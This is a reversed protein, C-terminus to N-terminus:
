IYPSNNDMTQPFDCLSKLAGFTFNMVKPWNMIFDIWPMLWNMSFAVWKYSWLPLTPLGKKLNGIKKAECGKWMVRGRLAWAALACVPLDTTDKNIIQAFVKRIRLLNMPYMAVGRCLRGQWPRHLSYILPWRSDPCLHNFPLYTFRVLHCGISFCLCAAKRIFTYTLQTAFCQATAHCVLLFSFQRAIFSFDILFWILCNEMRVVAVLFSRKAEKTAGSLPLARVAHTCTRFMFVPINLEYTATTVAGSLCFSCGLDSQEKM